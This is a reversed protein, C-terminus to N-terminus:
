LTLRHGHQKLWQDAKQYNPYVQGVKRWFAKSHNHHFRHCVEHAVLYDVVWEPAQLIVWNYQIVGARTCHGWKTRTKRIKVDIVSTGIRKALQHTKTSLIRLAQQKYWRELINKTQLVQSKPSTGRTLIVLDNGHRHSIAKSGEAIHLTLTEDLFPWTEGNCYQRNPVEQQRQAQQVLQKEVWSAKTLLWTELQEIPSGLPAAVIVHQHKITIATTRRKSLRIQYHFTLKPHQRNFRQIDSKATLMPDLIHYQTTDNVRKLKM